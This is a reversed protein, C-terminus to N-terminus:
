LWQSDRPEQGSGIRVVIMARTGLAPAVASAPRRGM